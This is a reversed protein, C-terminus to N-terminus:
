DRAFIVYIAAAAALIELRGLVMLGCSVVLSAPSQAAWDVQALPGANTVSAAAMRWAAEFDAGGLGIAIAGLGMAVPFALAYVWVGALAQDSVARGSFRTRIAASPHSLVELEGGARRMLLLIRPMKIGGTTSITSGGIMALMLWVVPGGYTMASTQYGSTSIAFLADFLTPLIAPLGILIGALVAVGISVGVIARLEGTGRGYRRRTALEYLVAFNWAGIVCLLVLILVGASSLQAGVPGSFPALGATAVASLSLCLAEFLPTGSVSLAFAGILTISTYISGLRRVARGFNTFLDAREVTLLTTRRLGVGRRDLAAFVTAAFVLSALGGMWAILSRWLVISRPADEPALAIAGTTTMASYAEFVGLIVSQNALILPAAALVPIILWGLFALRLAASARAPRTSGQTAALIVGGVFGGSVFTFFFGRAEERAGELSAMLIFPLAAGAVLIACWAMARFMRPSLTM